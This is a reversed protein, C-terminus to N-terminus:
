WWFSVSIGVSCSRVYHWWGVPIYLVEGAELICEVYPVESIGPYVEDWDEAPSLEMAAVDIQSTNSMDIRDVVRQETGTVKGGDLLPNEPAEEEESRPYLRHSYEPSYLRLYKKGVVQCLINHYPDHHLPSITWAPGFWINTQINSTTCDDGSGHVDGESLHSAAKFPLHPPHNSKKKLGNSLKIAVPTGEKPPPADLFCYDPTAIASRLSPIQCLLDHQALYGTLSSDETSGQQIDQKASYRSKKTNPAPSYKESDPASSLPSSRSDGEAASPKEDVQLPPERQSRMAQGRPQEPESKNFIHDDLFKRFPIIKQGWGDDTYSRGVEIPVLRKGDFTSDLWYSKSMWSDLAPWHHMTDTLIAPKATVDMYRQFDPLSPAQLRQIPHLISPMSVEETSLVDDQYDGGALPRLKSSTLLTSGEPRQAHNSEGKHSDVKRTKATKSKTVDVKRRKSPREEYYETADELEKMLSHIMDERGLGGAMILAMDLISVVDDLWKTSSMGQPGLHRWPIMKVAKAISTDTYLRFWCAKVDSFPFVHLKKNALKFLEDAHDPLYHLNPQGCEHIPDDKSHEQLDALISKCLAEMKEIIPNNWPTNLGTLEGNASGEIQGVTDRSWRSCQANVSPSTAQSCNGDRTSMKAGVICAIYRGTTLILV